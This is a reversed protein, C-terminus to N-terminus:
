IKRVEIITGNMKLQMGVPNGDQLGLEFEMFDKLGLIELCAGSESCQELQKAERVDKCICLCNNGNCSNPKMESGVFGFVVWKAPNLVDLSYNNLNNLKMHDIAQNIRDISDKAQTLKGSNMRAFYLSVLLYVLFMICIVTLVTKVVEEPLMQEGRKNKM